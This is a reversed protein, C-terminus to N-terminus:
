KSTAPFSSTASRILGVWCAWVMALDHLVILSRPLATTIRRGIYAILSSAKRRDM